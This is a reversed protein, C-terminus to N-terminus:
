NGFAKRFLFRMGGVAGAIVLAAIGVHAVTVGEALEYGAVDSVLELSGELADGVAM